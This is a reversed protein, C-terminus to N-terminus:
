EMGLELKAAETMKSPNWPPDWVLDVYAKKVGEVMGIKTQVETPLTGIVPCNPSTLTMKIKAEGSPDVKIDYIMGLDYINVPIEPDFCSKLTKVIGERIVESNPPGAAEENETSVPEAKGEIAAKVTHWALTACKVRAPYERVGALVALKGLPETDLTATPDATVMAHFKDFLADVEKQTKGKLAGTMMSASARSIACGSGEFRLDKLTEGEMQLQLTITDGCLPNYGEAKHTAGTLKGFNHPNKNHDLILEQYLDRIDSTM